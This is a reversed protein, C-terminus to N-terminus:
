TVERNVVFLSIVICNMLKKILDLYWKTIKQREDVQLHLLQDKLNVAGMNHNYYTICLPKEIEKGKEGVRMHQVKTHQCWLQMEKTVDNLMTIPSLHKVVIEGKKLGKGEVEKCINRRNLKLTGVCDSFHEMKLQQALGPSNYFNDVQGTHGHGLLPELVKPVVAATRPMEPTVLSLELVTNKGTICSFVM